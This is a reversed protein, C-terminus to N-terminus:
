PKAALSPFAQELRRWRRVSLTFPHSARRARPWGSSGANGSSVAEKSLGAELTSRAIDTVRATSGPDYLHYGPSLISAPRLRRGVPLLYAFEAPRKLSSSSLNIAAVAVDAM